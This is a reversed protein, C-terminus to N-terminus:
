FRCFRGGGIEIIAGLDVVVAFFVTLLAVLMLFLLSRLRYCIKRWFWFGAGLEGVVEVLPM